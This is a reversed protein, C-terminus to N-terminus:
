SYRPPTRHLLALEHLERTLVQARLVARDDLIDLVDRPGLAKLDLAEQSLEALVERLLAVMRDHKGLLDMEQTANRRDLNRRDRAAVSV